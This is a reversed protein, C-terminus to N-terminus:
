NPWVEMTFNLPIRVVAGKGFWTEYIEAYKGSVWLDMLARDVMGRWIGDDPPLGVAIPITVIPEKIIRLSGPKESKTQLSVLDKFDGVLAKVKRDALLELGAEPTDVPVIVADSIKKDLDTLDTGTVVAIAKGTLSSLRYMGSSAPVLAMTGGVLYTVSFDIVREWSMRHNLCPVEQVIGEAVTPVIVDPDVVVFKATVGLREAAARAIDVDFGSFTLDDGQGTAKSFPLYDGRVGVTMVGSDRVADAIEGATLPLPCSVILLLAALRAAVTVITNGLQEKSPKM